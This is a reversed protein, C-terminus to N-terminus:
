DFYLDESILLKGDQDVHSLLQRANKAIEFAEARDVFRNSATIFGDVYGDCDFNAAISVAFCDSHRRGAIVIGTTINSPLSRSTPAAKLHIAACLIRDLSTQNPTEKLYYFYAWEYGNEEGDGYWLRLGEAKQHVSFDDDTEYRDLDIELKEAQIFTEAAALNSFNHVKSSELYGDKWSEEIVQYSM